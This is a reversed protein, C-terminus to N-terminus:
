DDMSKSEVLKVVGITFLRWTPGIACTYPPHNVAIDEAEEQTIDGVVSIEQQLTIIYRNM